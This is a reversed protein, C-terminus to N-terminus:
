GGNPFPARLRKRRAIANVINRDQEGPVTEGTGWRRVTRRSVEFADAAAQVGGLATVLELLPGEIVTERPM